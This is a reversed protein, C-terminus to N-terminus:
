NFYIFLVLVYSFFQYTLFTIYIQEKLMNHISYINGFMYTYISVYIYMGVSVCVCMGM